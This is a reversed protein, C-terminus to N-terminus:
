KEKCLVYLIFCKTILFQSNILCLFSTLILLSIREFKNLSFYLSLNPSNLLVVLVSLTSVNKKVFVVLKPIVRCKLQLRARDHTEQSRFYHINQFDTGWSFVLQTPIQGAKVTKRFKFVLLDFKILERNANFASHKTLLKCTNVAVFILQLIYTKTALRVIRYTM